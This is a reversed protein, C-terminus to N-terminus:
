LFGMDSIFAFSYNKFTLKIFGLNFFIYFWNLFLLWVKKIDGM